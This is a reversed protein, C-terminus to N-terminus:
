ARKECFGKILSANSYISVEGDKICVLSPAQMIKFEKALDVNVTADIIEYKLGAEDLFRKAIKCNPCTPTTFLMM